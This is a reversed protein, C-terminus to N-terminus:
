LDTETCVRLSCYCSLFFPMMTPMGLASPISINMKEKSWRDAVHLFHCISDPCSTMVRKSRLWMSSFPFSTLTLRHHSLMARVATSFCGLMYFLSILLIILFYCVVFTDCKYYLLHLFQLPRLHKGFGHGYDRGAKVPKNFILWMKWLREFLPCSFQNQGFCVSMMLEQHRM